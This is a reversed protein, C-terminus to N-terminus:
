RRGPRYQRGCSTDTCWSRSRRGSHGVLRGIEEIPVGADSLLSVFAHGLERPTWEGPEVGDVGALARRFYRRVNAADMATGVLSTFVLGSEQWAPGALQRDRAQRDAGVAAGRRLSRAACRHLAVSAHEHRGGGPGFAVGGHFGTLRGVEHAAVPACAARGHTCRHADLDRTGSWCPAAPKRLGTTPETLAGTVRGPLRQSHRARTSDAPFPFEAAHQVLVGPM